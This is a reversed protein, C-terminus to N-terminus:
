AARKTETPIPLDSISVWNTATEWPPQAVEPHPWNSLQEYDFPQSNKIAASIKARIIEVLQPVLALKTPWATLIKKDSDELLQSTEPRKGHPMVKEARDVRYTSFQCYELDLGPIVAQLESAAHRILIEPEQTVGQEAIEGGLQWVTEGTSTKDSTITVRTKKGDVCHGNFQPLPGKILVMHLPRRQMIDADLGAQERLKANGAGATFIIQQPALKLLEGTKPNQISVTSEAMDFKLGNTPEIKLIRGTHQSAISKLFGAPSIVQEDMKAVTGPCNELLTPRDTEDVTEPAVRLGVKAGIMGLRSSLSDTRWLYCCDSRVPTNSLNPAAQGALCDRWILPMERISTASGTLMGTLTYKLGGHIIGQSAVTQGGGLGGSELLLVSYNQRILDDLLWLGAAGGGFIVVDISTPNQNVTQNTMPKLKYAGPAINRPRLKDTTPSQPFPLQDTSALELERIELNLRRRILDPRKELATSYVKGMDVQPAFQAPRDNPIVITGDSPPLGILQRLEYERRRISELAQIRQQVLQELNVKSRAVDAYTTREASFRLEEIRVSEEALSVVENISKWTLHASQLSWYSQEVSRIEALTVEKVEWSSRNAQTQAIHIPTLNVSKGAGRLLPQRLEFVIDSSYSPNFEDPSFNADPFYLYGLSPAYAIQTETGMSWRKRLAASFDGIDRRTETSIGPGFFSDPPENIQSGSYEAELRPDFVSEAASIRTEAIAPDFSTTSEIQVGGSLTRVVDSQQLALQIAERLSLLRQQVAPISNQISNHFPIEAPQKADSPPPLKLSPGPQVNQGLRYPSPQLGIPSHGFQFPRSGAPLNPSNFKRVPNSFDRSQARAVVPETQVFSVTRSGVCGSFLFLLLLSFFGPRM